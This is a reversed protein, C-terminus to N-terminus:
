RRVYKMVALVLLLAGIGMMVVRIETMKNGFVGNEGDTYRRIWMLVFVTLSYNLCLRHVLCFKFLKSFMNIMYFGAVVIMIDIWHLEYGVLLLAIKAVSAAVAVVPIYRLTKVATIQEKTM